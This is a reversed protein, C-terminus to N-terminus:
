QLKVLVEAFRCGNLIGNWWDKVWTKYYLLFVGPTRLQSRHTKFADMKRRLTKSTDTVLMPLDRHRLNLLNWVDFSYVATKPFRRMVGMVIRYCARHDPHPDNISHTLVKSPKYKKIVYDIRASVNRYKADEDFYGERLGFFTIGAGGLIKDAEIAERIRREKVLEPKIQPNSFEGYSFIITLM